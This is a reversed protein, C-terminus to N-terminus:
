SVVRVAIKAEACNGASGEQGSFSPLGLSEGVTNHNTKKTKKQNKCFFFLLFPLCSVSM